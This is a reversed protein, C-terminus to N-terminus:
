KRAERSPVFKLAASNMCYRRGTPPPGDDFVHGLHAECRACRVETREMLLSNDSRTVINQPAIPKWFSPWGTGSDFKADSSFLVTECCVCLYLGKATLEDYENAFPRETGGERTVYYQESTLQKKWEADSKVVKNLGAIGTPTGSPGFQAIWIKATERTNGIGGDTDANANLPVFILGAKIALPLAMTGSIFARRSRKGDCKSAASYSM